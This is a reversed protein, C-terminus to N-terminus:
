SRIWMMMLAYNSQHVTWTQPGFATRRPVPSTVGASRAKAGGWFSVRHAMVPNRCIPLHSPSRRAGQRSSWIEDMLENLENPRHSAQLTTRM